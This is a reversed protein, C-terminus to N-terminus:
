TKRAHGEYVPLALDLFSNVSEVINKTSESFMDLHKIIVVVTNQEIVEDSLGISEIEGNLIFKAKRATDVWELEQNSYRDHHVVGNRELRYVECAKNIKKLANKLGLKEVKRNTTISVHSVSEKAMQIDCLYNTFILARDYVSRSRILYNEIHFEIYEAIEHESPSLRYSQRICEEAIELKKLSTKIAKCTTWCDVHYQEVESEESDNKHTELDSLFSEFIQHTM